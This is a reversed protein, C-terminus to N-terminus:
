RPLPARDIASAAAPCAALGRRFAAPHGPLHPRAACSNRRGRRSRLRVPGIPKSRACCFVTSGDTGADHNAHPNRLHETAERIPASQKTPKNTPQAAAIPEPQLLSSEFFTGNPPPAPSPPSAPSGLPPLDPEAPSPPAAPLPTTVGSPPAAPSPPAGLADSPPAAPLPVAPAGLASPPAAPANAIHTGLPLVTFRLRFPSPAWCTQRPAITVAGNVAPSEDGEKVHQPAHLPAPGFTSICPIVVEDPSPATPVNAKRTGSSAGKPGPDIVVVQAPPTEVRVNSTLTSDVGAGTTVPSSFV